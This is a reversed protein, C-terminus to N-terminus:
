SRKGNECFAALVPSPREMEDPTPHFQVGWAAADLARIGEVTGDNLNRHTVEVAAPLNREDVAYSHRQVTIHSTGAALNRIPYNVGHHGAKMRKIAAGLALALVQHGLGIGLLPAKGLLARATEVAYAAARPDGPGGALIVGQPKKALVDKASATCRLIEVECGLAALQALLGNTVGLNLIALRHKRPGVPPRTGEWSVEQVLDKKSPPPAKKLGRAIRKPDFDGSAIAGRMEGHERLHVAVARTDVERIGVVGRAKLFDELSGTARWNSFYPSYERIVVGAAQAEGSENDEGNVGYAGIIPYTLVTLLRHYSPDTLVEQYGVVGTYFAAEGDARGVQGFPLGEFMTGDELILAAKAKSM